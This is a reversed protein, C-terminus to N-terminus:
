RNLLKQSMAEVVGLEIKKTTGKRQRLASLKFLNSIEDLHLVALFSAKAVQQWEALAKIGDIKDKALLYDFRATGTALKTATM